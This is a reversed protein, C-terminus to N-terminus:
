PSALEYVHLAVPTDGYGTYPGGGYREYLDRGRFDDTFHGDAATLERDEFVVRIKTGPKLGAVTIKASALSETPPGIQDGWIIREPEAKDAAEISTHGWEVRGGEHLFGVGDLLVDSAKIKELPVELKVWEGAQPLAGMALAEGPVFQLAKDTQKDDWGLFGSSHRYFARLFWHARKLDSRYRAVQFDGWAAAHV